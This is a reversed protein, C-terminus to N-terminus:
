QIILSDVVLSGQQVELSGQITTFGSNTLYYNDGPLGRGGYFTVDVARDLLLNEPFTYVHAALYSNAKAQAYADALSAYEVLSGGIFTAEFNLAFTATITTPGNLTVQCSDSGSCPLSWGVFLSKWDTTAALNVNSLDAFNDSSCGAPSGSSCNIGVPDSNVSGGGAGATIVTLTYARGTLPLLLIFLCSLALLSLNNRVAGDIGCDM